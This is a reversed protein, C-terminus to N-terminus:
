IVDIAGTVSPIKELATQDTSLYTAGLERVKDARQSDAPERFYVVTEFGTVTMAIAGPM